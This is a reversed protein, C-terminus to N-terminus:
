DWSAPTRPTACPAWKLYDQQGFTRALDIPLELEAFTELDFLAPDAGAVFPCFAAAAVSAIKGLTAPGDTPNASSPGNHIEYDGILVGFPEGGPTGFEENYVKRFLQSQDFEM